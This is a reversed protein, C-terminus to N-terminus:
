FLYIGDAEGCSCVAFDRLVGDPKGFVAAAVSVRWGLRNATRESSLRFIPTSTRRRSVLATRVASRVVEIVPDFLLPFITGANEHDM